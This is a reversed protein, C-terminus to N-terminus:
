TKKDEMRRLCPPEGRRRESHFIETKEKERDRAQSAQFDQRQRGQGAM